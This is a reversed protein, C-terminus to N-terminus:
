SQMCKVNVGDDKVEISHEQEEVPLILILRQVSRTVLITKVNDNQVLSYRIVASRVFGDESTNVVDIVGFKYKAKVKSKDAILVVDRM